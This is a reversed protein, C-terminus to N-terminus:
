LSKYIFLQLFMHVPYEKTKNTNHSNKSIALYYNILM